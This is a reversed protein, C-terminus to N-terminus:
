HAKPVSVSLRRNLSLFDRSQGATQWAVAVFYCFRVLSARPTITALTLCNALGNKVGVPINVTM